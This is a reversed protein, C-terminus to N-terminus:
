NNKVSCITAKNGMIGTRSTHIHEALKKRYKVSGCRALHCMHGTIYELLSELCLCSDESRCNKVALVNHSGFVGVM